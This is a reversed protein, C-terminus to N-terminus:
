GRFSGGASAHALAHGGAAPVHVGSSTAPRSTGNHNVARVSCTLTHGQDARQVAYTSRTAHSISTGDRNWRYRYGTPSHTWSGHSCSLSHGPHPTGSIAPRRVNAPVPHCAPAPRVAASEYAGMDVVARCTAPRGETIRPRGAVDVTLGAPVLANAGRDITPSLSTEAGAASLRPNACINAAGALPTTASSSTCGDDHVYAPQAYGFIEPAGSVGLNGYVIANKIVLSDQPGGWIANGEGTSANVQNATLTSDYLALQSPPCTADNCDNAVSGGTYIAGGWADPASASNRLFLDDTGTLHSSLHTNNSALLGIVGVAGGEPAPDTSTETLTNGIFRDAQSTISTATGWEAGGGALDGSPNTNTGAVSNNQFLNHSQVVPSVGVTWSQPAIAIAGGLHDSGSGGTVQNGLFKNQSLHLTQIPGSASTYLSVFVAGGWGPASNGAGVTGGGFTNGAITVPSSSAVYQNQVDIAGGDPYSSTSTPSVSNGSFTNGVIQVPGPTDIYAAGGDFSSNGSLTDGSLTLSYASTPSQYEFAGGYNGPATDNRFTDNRIVGTVGDMSLASYTSNEFLLNQITLGGDPSGITSLISSSAANGNFGDIPVGHSPPSAGELTLTKTSEVTYSQNVCLQDLKIVDGTQASDLATQLGSCDVTTTTAAASSASLLGVLSVLALVRVIRPM